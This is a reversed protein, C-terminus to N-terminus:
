LWTSTAPRLPARPTPTVFRLRSNPRGRSSRSTTSASAAVTPSTSATADDSVPLEGSVATTAKSSDSGATNTRSAGM